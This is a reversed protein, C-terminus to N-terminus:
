EVVIQNIKNLEARKFTFYIRGVGLLQDNYVFVLDTSKSKGKFGLDFNITPSINNFREFHYFVPRTTDKDEIMRFDKEATFSCYSVLQAYKDNDSTFRRLVEQHDKLDKVSLVFSHSSAESTDPSAVKGSKYTYYRDPRYMLKFEIDDFVKVQNLHANTEIEQLYEKPSMKHKCAMCLLLSFFGVLSSLAKTNKM